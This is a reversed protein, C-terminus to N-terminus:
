RVDVSEGSLSLDPVVELDLLMVPDGRALDDSKAALIARYVPASARITTLSREEDQAQLIRECAEDLVVALSDM